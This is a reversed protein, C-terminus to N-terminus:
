ENVVLNDHEELLNIQAISCDQIIFRKIQFVHTYFHVSVHLDVLCDKETNRTNINGSKM